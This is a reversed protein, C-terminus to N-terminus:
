QVFRGKPPVYRWFWCPSLFWNSTIALTTGPEGIKTVKIISPSREESVNVRVVTVRLIM